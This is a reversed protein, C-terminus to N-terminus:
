NKGYTQIFSALIATCLTSDSPALVCTETWSGNEDNQYYTMVGSATYAGVSPDADGTVGPPDTFEVINPTDNTAEERSPSLMGCTEGDLAEYAAQFLQCAQLAAGVPSASTQDGRVEQITTGPTLVADPSVGQSPPYIEINSSGDAGVTAQCDWSAPALLKMIGQSDTFVALQSSSYGPPVMVDVPTTLHAPAEGSIGLTTSCTYLTLSVQVLDATPVTTSPPFTATTASSPATSPSTTAPTGISATSPPSHHNSAALVIVPIVIAAAIVLGVILLTRSSPQRTAGEGLADYGQTTASPRLPQVDSTEALPALRKTSAGCQNCFSDDDRIDSACNQCETM